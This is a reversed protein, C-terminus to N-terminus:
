SEGPMLLKRGPPFQRFVQPEVITVFNRFQYYDRLAASMDRVTSDDLLYYPSNTTGIITTNDDLDPGRRGLIADPDLLVKTLEGAKFLHNLVTSSFTRCRGRDVLFWPLIRLPNGSTVIRGNYQRFDIQETYTDLSVTQQQASMTADKEAM